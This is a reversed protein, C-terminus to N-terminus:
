VTWIRLLDATRRDAPVGALLAAARASWVRETLCEEPLESPAPKRDVGVPILRWIAFVVWRGAHSIYSGRRLTARFQFTLRALRVRRSNFVIRRFEWSPDPLSRCCSAALFLKTVRVRKVSGGQDCANRRVSAPKGCPAFFGVDIGIM